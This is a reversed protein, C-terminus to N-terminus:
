KHIYATVDAMDQPCIVALAEVISCMYWHCAGSAVCRAVPGHMLNSPMLFLLQIHKLM